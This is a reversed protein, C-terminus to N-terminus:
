KTCPKICFFTCMLQSFPAWLLMKVLLIVVCYYGQIIMLFDKLSYVLMKQVEVHKCFAGIFYHRDKRGETWRTKWRDTLKRLIPENTKESVRRPKYITAHSLQIKKFFDGAPLFSWFCDFIYFCPKQVKILPNGSFIRYHKLFEQKPCISWKLGLFAADEYIQTRELIKKKLNHEIFLALLYIFTISIAKVQFIKNLAFPDNQAWFHCM